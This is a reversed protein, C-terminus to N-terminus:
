RGLEQWQLALPRAADLHFCPVKAQKLLDVRRQTWTQAREQYEKNTSSNGLWFSCEFEGDTAVVPTPSVDPLRQELPDQVLIAQVQNHLSIARLPALHDDSLNQFDSIIYVEAGTKVLQRLRQLNSLLSMSSAPRQQAQAHSETLLHLYRLVGKDRTMPKMERHGQDNCVLGGVRDGRYASQWAIAAAAHAAQVSKLLLESGLLMTSSLDALIFVPREKEERFLKTHAQGTRATVRWDIARIDDGNQYHRVEDFEMGRGKFKSLTSGARGHAPLRRPSRAKLARYRRYQLLEPLTLSSGNSQLAQLWQAPSQDPHIALRTM